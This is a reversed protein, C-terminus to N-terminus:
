AHGVDGSLSASDVGMEAVAREWRQEPPTHFLIELTAPGSLWANQGMEQELQGAGWGAYGLAVLTDDPGTGQSMAELIDKSTSVAVESTVRITSEWDNAPYHIIFGRDRHVPGGQYVPQSNAACEPGAINMQTFVEGLEIELPRNIVIGMAGDDNHACVYTVTNSFNPDGMSPMAILFQNTLDFSLM